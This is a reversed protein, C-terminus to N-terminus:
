WGRRQLEVPHCVGQIELYRDLAELEKCTKFTKWTTDDLSWRVEFELHKGKWQHRLLEDVFWKHKDPAGFDYPEPHARNPFMADNSAYYARLLSVHFM